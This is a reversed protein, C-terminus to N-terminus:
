QQTELFGKVHRSLHLSLPEFADATRALSLCPVDNALVKPMIIAESAVSFFFM